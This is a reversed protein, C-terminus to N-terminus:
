LIKSVQAAASSWSSEGCKFGHIDIQQVWVQLFLLCLVLKLTHDLGWIAEEHVDLAWTAQLDSCYVAVGLCNHKTSIAIHHEALWCTTKGPESFPAREPALNFSPIVKCCSPPLNWAHSHSKSTRSGAPCTLRWTQM